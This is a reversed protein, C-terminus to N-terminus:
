RSPAPRPSAAPSARPTATPPPTPLTDYVGGVLELSARVANQQIFGDNHDAIHRSQGPKLVINFEGHHNGLVKGSEGTYETEYQLDRWTTVQSTNRLTVDWSAVSGFGGKSWRSDVKVDRQLAARPSLTTPPPAGASGHNSPSTTGGHQFLSVLWVIGVFAILVACGGAVCGTQKKPQVIQVQSAGGKLDRGCHKCVTAEDQIEEACFPCKKM